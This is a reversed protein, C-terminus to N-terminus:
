SSRKQVFTIRKGTLTKLILNLDVQAEAMCNSWQLRFQKQLFVVMQIADDLGFIRRAAKVREERLESSRVNASRKTRDTKMHVM